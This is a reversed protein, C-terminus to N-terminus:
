AAAAAPPLSFLKILYIVFHKALSLLENFLSRLVFPLWNPASFLCFTSADQWVLSLAPIRTKCPKLVRQCILLLSLLRGNIEALLHPPDQMSLLIRLLFRAAM